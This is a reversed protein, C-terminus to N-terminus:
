LVDPGNSGLSWSILGLIPLLSTGSGLAQFRPNGAASRTLLLAFPAYNRVQPYFEFQVLDGTAAFVTSPDFVLGSQGVQVRYTNAAQSPLSTVLLLAIVHTPYLFRM